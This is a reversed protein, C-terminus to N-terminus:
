SPMRQGHFYFLEMKMFILFFSRSRKTKMSLAFLEDAKEALNTYYYRWRDKWGFPVPKEYMGHVRLFFLVEFILTKMKM